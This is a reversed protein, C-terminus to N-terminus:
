ICAEGTNSPFLLDSKKEWAKSLPDYAYVTSISAGPINIDWGGILYIKGDLVTSAAWSLPIPMNNEMSWKDSLPDYVEMSSLNSADLNMGGFAYIKNQFEVVMHYIRAVNMDAKKGVIM